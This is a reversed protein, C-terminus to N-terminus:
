LLSCKEDLFVADCLLQPPRDLRQPLLWVFFM